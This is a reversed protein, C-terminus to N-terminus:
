GYGPSASLPRSSVAAQQLYRHRRRVNTPPPLASMDPLWTVTFPSGDTDLVSAFAAPTGRAELSEVSRAGETPPPPSPLDPDLQVSTATWASCRLTGSSESASAGIETFTPSGFDVLRAQACRSYVNSPRTVPIRISTSGRRRSRSTESAAASPAAPRSCSRAARLAASVSGSRPQRVPTARLVSWTRSNGPAPQARSLPLHPLGNTEVHARLGRLSAALEVPTGDLFHRRLAAVFCVEAAEFQATGTRTIEAWVGRGDTACGGREVLSAYELRDVLRTAGGRTLRLVDALDRMRLRHGPASILASLV